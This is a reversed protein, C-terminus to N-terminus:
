SMFAAKGIGGTLERSIKDIIVSDDLGTVDITKDLLGQLEQPATSDDTTLAIVSGELNKILELENVTSADIVYVANGKDLDRVIARRLRYVWYDKESASRVEEWYHLAETMRPTRATADIIGAVNVEKWLIDHIYDAQRYSCGTSNVIMTIQAGESIPRRLLDIIANVESEIADAVRAEVIKTNKWTKMAVGRAIIERRAGDLGILAILKSKGMIKIKGLIM